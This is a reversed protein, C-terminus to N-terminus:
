MCGFPAIGYTSNPNARDSNGNYNYTVYHQTASYPTRNWFYTSSTGSYGMKKKRYEGSLSYLSVISGEADSVLSGPGFLEVRARLALKNGDVEILSNSAIDWSYVTFTKLRTKIWSPMADVLAPLTDQFMETEGYGGATTNAPNMRKLQALMQNFDFQIVNGCNNYEAFSSIVIEIDQEPYSVGAPDTFASIHIKRLDSINWGGDEHLDITGLQAADIMDAIQQDTGWAFPVMPIGGKIERNMGTKLKYVIVGADRGALTIPVDLVTRDILVTVDLNENRGPGSAARVVQKYGVEGITIPTDTTNTITLHYRLYPDGPSDCGVITNTIAVNVGSTITDHLNYDAESEPDSSRGISIGATATATTFTNTRSYPFRDYNPNLYYMRGVVNQIPLYGYAAGASELTSALLNKFNRTIM